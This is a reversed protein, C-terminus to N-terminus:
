KFCVLINNDQENIFENKVIVCGGGFSKVCHLIFDNSKVIQYCCNYENNNKRKKLKVGYSKNVFYICREKRPEHLKPFLKVKSYIILSLSIKLFLIILCKM